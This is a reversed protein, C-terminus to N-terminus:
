GLAALSKKLSLYTGALDNPHVRTEAITTMFNADHPWRPVIHVHLHTPVGAGASSGLNIGLNFGPPHFTEKLARTLLNVTEWLNASEDSSLELLEAVPRYPLVMLHGTNYPFKNLVAFCAKGRYLVLNSEDDSSQAIDSFIDPNSKGQGAIYSNRWPAWLHEM